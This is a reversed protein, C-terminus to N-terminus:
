GRSHHNADGDQLRHVVMDNALEVGIAPIMM